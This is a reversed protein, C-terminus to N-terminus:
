ELSTAEVANSGTWGGSGRSADEDSPVRKLPLHEIFHKRLFGFPVTADQRIVRIFM